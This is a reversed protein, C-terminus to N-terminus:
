LAPHLDIAGQIPMAISRQYPSTQLCVSSISAQTMVDPAPHRWPVFLPTSILGPSTIADDVRQGAHAVPFAAKRTAAPPFQFQPCGLAHVVSLMSANPQSGASDESSDTSCNMSNRIGSKMRGSPCPLNPLRVPCVDLMQTGAASQCHLAELELLPCSVADTQPPPRQQQSKTCPTDAGIGREWTGSSLSLPHSALASAQTTETM